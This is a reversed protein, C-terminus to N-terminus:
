KTEFAKKVVEELVVLDVDDLKSFSITSKGVKVKRGFKDKNQEALYGNVDVMSITVTIYNKQLALGVKFWEIVPKGPREIKYDGYGIIRQDSGGWFKGEWMVKEGAPAHKTILDDLKQVDAQSEDPLSAIYEEPKTATVKM